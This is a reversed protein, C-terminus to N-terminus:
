HQSGIGMGRIKDIGVLAKQAAEFARMGSIMQVMEDIANVNSLELYGQKVSSDISDFPEAGPGEKFRGNDDPILRQQDKFEVLRLSGIPERAQTVQGRGDIALEGRAPDAQIPGNEGAVRSGDAAVLFGNVDLNFNGNRTFRMGQSTELSFFAKGNIALDLSGDTQNFNGATFDISHKLGPLTMGAAQRLSSAFAEASGIRKRYGVTNANALNQARTDQLRGLLDLAAATHLLGGNM